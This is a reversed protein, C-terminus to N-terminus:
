KLKGEQDRRENKKIIKKRKKEKKKKKRFQIKVYKKKKPISWFSITTSNDLWFSTKVTPPKRIGEWASSTEKEKKRKREREKKETKM